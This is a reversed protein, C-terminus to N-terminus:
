IIQVTPLGNFKIDEIGNINVLYGHGYDVHTDDIKVVPMNKDYTKLAEILDGVTFM